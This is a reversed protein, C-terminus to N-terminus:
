APFYPRHGIATVVIWTFVLLAAVFAGTRIAPTSGRKLAVTGLGIYVVLGIVKATLWSNAFPYQHVVMTLGIASALLITDVVHPVTRAFKSTLRDSGTMMWVGRLLFLLLTLCVAAIHIYRLALYGAIGTESSKRFGAQGAIRPFTPTM